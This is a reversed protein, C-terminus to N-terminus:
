APRPADNLDTRLRPRRDHPTPQDRQRAPTSSWPRRALVWEILSVDQRPRGARRSPGVGTRRSPRLAQQRLVRRAPWRRRHRVSRAAGVDATAHEERRPPLGGAGHRQTPHVRSTSQVRHGAIPQGAARWATLGGNLVAVDGHGHTRFLWWLRVTFAGNGADYVVITSGPDARACGAGRSPVAGRFSPRLATERATRLFGPHPRRVRCRPRAWGPARLHRFAM